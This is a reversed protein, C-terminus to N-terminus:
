RLMKWVPVSEISEISEETCPIIEIVGTITIEQVEISFKCCNPCAVGNVALESISAAGSWYWIRRCNTLEVETGNKESLTGFFVGARDARVIVKKGIYNSMIAQNILQQNENLQEYFRRLVEECITIPSVSMMGCDRNVEAILQSIKYIDKWDLEKGTM